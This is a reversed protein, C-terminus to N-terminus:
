PLPTSVASDPTPSPRLQHAPRSQEFNFPMRLDGSGAFPSNLESQTMSRSYTVSGWWGGDRGIYWRHLTATLWEGDVLVECPRPFDTEIM